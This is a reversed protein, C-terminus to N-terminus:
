LYPNKGTVVNEVSEEEQYRVGFAGKTKKLNLFVKQNRAGEVYKRKTFVRSVFTAEHRLMVTASLM